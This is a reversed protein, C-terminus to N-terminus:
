FRDVESFPNSESFDIISASQTQFFQNNAQADTTSITFEQIYSGGDESKIKGAGYTGDDDLDFQYQLVDLTLNDEIGDIESFGTNIGESSYDFLECRLDYTQLRGTQYFVTEHEVFKIEFLKDVMPFFILDGEMPRTSTIAYNNATGEELQIGHMEFSTNALKRKFPTVTSGAEQIFNYGVETLLKESKAQEFRKRAVTFTVQDRIELGFRSLFEGEGEFGDVNKIYMELDAAVDFTSLIDEGYLHDLKTITRPLYKMNMGYMKISEITLDEVLDQERAVGFNNFYKNIAM